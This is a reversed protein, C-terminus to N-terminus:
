VTLNLVYVCHVCILSRAIVTVDTIPQKIKRATDSILLRGQDNSIAIAHDTSDRKVPRHAHYMQIQEQIIAGRKRKKSVNNLKRILDERKEGTTCLGFLIYIDDNIPPNALVKHLNMSRNKKRKWCYRQIHGERRLEELYQRIDKENYGEEDVQQKTKWQSTMGIFKEAEIGGGCFAKKLEGNTICKFNFLILM